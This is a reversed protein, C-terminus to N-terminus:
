NDSNGKEENDQQQEEECTSLWVKMTVQRIVMKLMMIMSTPNPTALGLRIIIFGKKKSM